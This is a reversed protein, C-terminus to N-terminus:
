CAVREGAPELALTYGLAAFYPELTSVKVRDGRAVRQEICGVTSVDVAMHEGLARQSMRRQGRLKALQPLVDSVDAAISGDCRRLVLHHGVGNAYAIAHQISPSRRGHEWNRVATPGAGVANAIWRQPIDRDSRLDRLRQLLTPQMM